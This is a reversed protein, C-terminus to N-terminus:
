SVGPLFDVFDTPHAMGFQTQYFVVELSPSGDDQVVTPLPTFIEFPPVEVEDHPNARGSSREVYDVTVRRPRGELSHCTVPELM